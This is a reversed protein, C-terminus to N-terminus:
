TGLAAGDVLCETGQTGQRNAPKYTQQGMPRRLLRGSPLLLSGQSRAPRDSPPILGPGQTPTPSPPPPPPLAPFQAPRTSDGEGPGKKRWVGEWRLAPFPTHRGKSPFHRIIHPSPPFGGNSFDPPHSFYKLTLPQFNLFAPILVQTRLASGDLWVKLKESGAIQREM